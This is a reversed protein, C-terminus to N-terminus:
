LTHTLNSRSGLDMQQQIERRQVASIARVLASIWSSAHTLIDLIDDQRLIESGLGVKTDAEANDCPAHLSGLSSQTATADREEPGADLSCLHPIM